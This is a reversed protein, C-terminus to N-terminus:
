RRYYDPDLGFDTTHYGYEWDQTVKNWYVGYSWGDFREDIYYVQDIYDSTHTRWPAPGLHPPEPPLPEPGVANRPVEIAPSTAVANRAGFESSIVVVGPFAGRHPTNPAATPNRPAPSRLPPLNSRFEPQQAPQPAAATTLVIAATALCFM